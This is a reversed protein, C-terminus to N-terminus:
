TVANMSYSNMSAVRKKTQGQSCCCAFWLLNGRSPSFLLSFVFLFGATTILKPTKQIM